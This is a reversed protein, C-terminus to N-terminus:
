QLSYGGSQMAYGNPWRFAIAGHLSRERERVARGDNGSKVVWGNATRGTIIGVHHRWVVLAGIAPGRANTGYGAWNRALNFRPDSVGLHQRMWWGCWAGPRANVYRAHASHHRHVAGHRHRAEAPSHALAVISVIAVAGLARKM